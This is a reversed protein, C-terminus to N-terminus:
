RGTEPNFIKNYNESIRAWEDANEPRQLREMERDTSERAWDTVIKSFVNWDSVLTM